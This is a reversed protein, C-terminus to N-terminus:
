RDPLRISPQKTGSETRCQKVAETGSGPGGAIGSTPATDGGESGGCSTTAAYPHESKGPSSFFKNQTQLLSFPFHNNRLLAASGSGPDPANKQIRFALVFSFSRIPFRIESGPDVDRAGRRRDAPAKCQLTASGTNPDPGMGTHYSRFFWFPLSFFAKDKRATAIGPETNQFSLSGTGTHIKKPMESRRVAM